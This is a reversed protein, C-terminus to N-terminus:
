QPPRQGQQQMQGGMEKQMISQMKQQLEPDNQIVQSIEMYREMSMGPIEDIKEEIKTQSEQQIKELNQNILGFVEMEEDTADSEAEPNQMSQQIEGYREVEMGEDEVSSMMEQQTAQNIEQVKMAADVFKELEEDSIDAAEGEPMGEGPLQDPSQGQQGPAEEEVGQQGEDGEGQSKETSEQCGALIFLSAIFIGLIKFNM